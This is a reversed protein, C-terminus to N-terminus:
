VKSSAPMFYRSSTIWLDDASPADGGMQILKGGEDSVQIKPSGMM